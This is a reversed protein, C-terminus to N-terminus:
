EKLIKADVTLEQQIPVSGPKIERNYPLTLTPLDTISSLGFHQLFEPSTTYLIPRGPRESRGTEEILGKSQLTKIVSDSNVGRISDIMPRTIPQQYAIIALTELSAKSLRSTIELNLLDEVIQSTEPATTLQYRGRNKQLLIGRNKFLIELNRLAKEVERPTVRLIEAMKGATVAQPSVFLLAEIKAELSLKQSLNAPINIEESM